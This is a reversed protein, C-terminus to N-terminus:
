NVALMDANSVLPDNVNGSYPDFALCTSEAAARADTLECRPHVRSHGELTLHDWHLCNICARNSMTM